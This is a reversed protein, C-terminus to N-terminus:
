SILIGLGNSEEFNYFRKGTLHAIASVARRVAAFSVTDHFLVCQAHQASWLGCTFTDVYTHVIDVHILDYLADDQAIWRRYDSRVLRINRFISLRESTESFVDSRNATHKDGTFRDVGIVEDFFCSLAATSYGFEVGFELCRKRGVNFRRILDDLISEIGAWATTVPLVRSPLHRQEPVYPLIPEKPSVLNQFLAKYAHARTVPPRNRPRLINDVNTTELSM